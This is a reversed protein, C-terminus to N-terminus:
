IRYVCPIDQIFISVLYQAWMQNSVNTRHISLSGDSGVIGLCPISASNPTITGLIAFAVFRSEDNSPRYEEPITGPLLSLYNENTIPLSGPFFITLFVIRGLKSFKCVNATGQAVCGGWDVTISTTRPITNGRIVIDGSVRCDGNMQVDGNMRIPNGSLNVSFGENPTLTVDGDSNLNIGDSSLSIVSRVNEAHSLSVANNTITARVQSNEEERVTISSSSRITDSTFGKNTISQISVNSEGSLPVVCKTRIIYGELCKSNM